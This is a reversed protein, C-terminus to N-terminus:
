PYCSLTQIAQVEMEFTALRSKRRCQVLWDKPRRRREAIRFAIQWRARMRNWIVYEGMDGFVENAGVGGPGPEVRAGVGDDATIRLLAQAHRKEAEDHLVVLM